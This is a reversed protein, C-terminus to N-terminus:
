FLFIMYNLELRYTEEDSCHTKARRLLSSVASRKHSIPNNSEFNLIVEAYTDKRYVSTQLTGDTNRQVLVDLFPLTNNVEKELTFQIGPITSNITNHLTELQDKKVVVFTDDVYRVWFKPNVLPLAMSELKQMTIEALFGSIPSGM